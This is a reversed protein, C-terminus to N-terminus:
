VIHDGADAVSIREFIDFGHHPHYDRSMVSISRIAEPACRAGVRYSAGTDFPIGVVFADCDSVDPVHPLRMFTRIGVFRPSDLGSIPRYMDSLSRPRLRISSKVSRSAQLM